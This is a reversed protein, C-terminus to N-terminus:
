KDLKYTLAMDLCVKVEDVPLPENVNLIIARNKLYNLEPLLERFTEVLSTQCHFFIAVENDTHRDIRVTTGSGSVETLFSPQSWKLTEMLPGIEERENAVQYVLERIELLRDRIKDPYGEIVSLVEASIEANECKM